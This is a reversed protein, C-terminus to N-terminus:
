GVSRLVERVNKTKRKLFVACTSSLRVSIAEFAPSEIFMMSCGDEEGLDEGVRKALDVANAFIPALMDSWAGSTNLERGDLDLLAYAIVDPDASIRQIELFEQATLRDQNEYDLQIM